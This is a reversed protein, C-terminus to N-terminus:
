SRGPRLLRKGLRTLPARVVQPLLWVANRARYELDWRLSATRLSPVTAFYSGHRRQVSAFGLEHLTARTVSLRHREYENGYSPGQPRSGAPSVALVHSGVRRAEHIVRMATARDFHELVDIMLVLDYRNTDMRPLVDAADGIVIDDYLKRQLDTLYPEYAEIGEIVTLRPPPWTKGDGEYLDLYERLLFAMKGTGVGVDLVSRPRLVLATELIKSINQANSTPM